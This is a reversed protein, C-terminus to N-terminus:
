FGKSEAEAAVDPNAVAQTNASGSKVYGKYETVPSTKCKEAFAEAKNEGSADTGDMALVGSLANSMKFSEGDTKTTDNMLLVEALVKKGNMGLIAEADFEQGFSSIKETHPKATCDGEATNSAYLFQKFRNAYGTNEKGGKLEAGIDKRFGINVDESTINVIYKMTRGGFQNTYVLVEKITAAYVGADLAKFEGSVEGTANDMAEKSAGITELISM